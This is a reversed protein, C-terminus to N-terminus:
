HEEACAESLYISALLAFVYAQLVGVLLELAFLVANLMIPAIGIIPGFISTGALMVAFTAFIELLVHGAVMNAFLRISLSVPRSLWSIVEVPVLIPALLVSVEKPLFHRFFQLGQYYVAAAFSVFFVTLALAFTVIIHSTYAFSFPLLGLYNGGLIFFFIAFIFPFFVRGREGINETAMDAIFEYCVEAAAQLRGPIIAEKRMGIFLFALVVIVTFVMVLTSQSFGLTQGIHGFVPHLEFQGLADITPANAM